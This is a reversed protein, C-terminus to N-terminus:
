NKYYKYIYKLNNKYYNMYSIHYIYLYNKYNIDLNDNLIKRYHIYLYLDM